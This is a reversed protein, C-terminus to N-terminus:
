IPPLVLSPRFELTNALDNTSGSPIYGVPIKKDLKMLGNIVENLTGDGGCCFFLM